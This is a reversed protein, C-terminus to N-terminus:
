IHMCHHKLEKKERIKSALAVLHNDVFSLLFHVATDEAGEKLWVVEGCFAASTGKKKECELCSPPQWWCNMWIVPRPYLRMHTLQNLIVKLGSSLHTASQQTTALNLLLEGVDGASKREDRPISLHGLASLSIRPSRLSILLVQWERDLLRRLPLLNCVNLRRKVEKVRSSVESVLGLFVGRSFHGMKCM